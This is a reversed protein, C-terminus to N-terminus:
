LVSSDFARPIPGLGYHMKSNELHNWHAVLPSFWHMPLFSKLSSKLNPEKPQTQEAAQVVQFAEFPTWTKTFHIVDLHTTFRDSEVTQM